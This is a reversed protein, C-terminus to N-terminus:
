SRDQDNAPEPGRTGRRQDGMAVGTLRRRIACVEDVMVRGYGRAKMEREFTDLALIVADMAGPTIDAMVMAIAGFAIRHAEIRLRLEEDDM